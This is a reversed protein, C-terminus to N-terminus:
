DALLLRLDDEFSGELQRLEKIIEEPDEAPRYVYFLKTFPFEVGDKDKDRDMWADPAYPLVERDFYVQVNEGVPILEYDRLDTDPVFPSDFRLPNERVPPMEPDIKGLWKRILKIGAATIKLDKEKLLAFAESDGMPRNAQRIYKAADHLLKLDPTKIIQKPKEANLGAEVAAEVEAIRRPMNTYGLRLPREITIRTYRFDDTDVVKVIDIEEDDILRRCPRFDAYYKVIDDALEKGVEYRKKGLSRQLPTVLKQHSADILVVKGKRDTPKKNDLIWLYTVIPTGFFIDKPLAVIGDLLDNDIIYKRIQSWGSGAGGNFLPSSNLVIGIRSGTQRNMKHILHLLFLLSGDSTDPLGPAFRSGKIEAENKVSEEVKKWDVGFPPNTIMFDFTKDKFKDDNLTNGLRIEDDDEGKMLMDAKCIAYTQENIEQGCLKLDTKMVNAQRAIEDIAERAVTLMGGTGCCPDLLRYGLGSEALRHEQGSLVLKVLLRVIDRPTYYQGGKEGTAEKTYRIVMEFILGMEHNDVKDPHLDINIAFEKTVLLLLNKEALRSYIASLSGGSGATFNKLIDRVNPSFGELYTKFNDALAAPNNILNSLSFGSSNYFRLANRTRAKVMRLLHEDLNVDPNARQLTAKCHDVIARYPEFVCDLRRLLTFPLLVQDVDKDNYDDRILEKINWILNGLEQPTAM